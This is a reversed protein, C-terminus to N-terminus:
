TRTEQNATGLLNALSIGIGDPPLVYNAAGLKIAEGPMGFVVSSLDDQAITIAGADKMLKLEAAGDKGMGTLLVGIADAGFVNAVSRFLYSISPRMGNEPQKKSLVIQGNSRVEMHHDDPAMYAHEPLPSEGHSAISVPFGSSEALWETFGHVFGDAMHQVILVPVPFDLPLESLIAQIAIPGGTSAGMAVVKIETKPKTKPVSTVPAPATVQRRLLHPRRTVVKVESMLKVTQILEKMSREYDPHGVGAPKKIVTVAGAELAKFTKAVEKPDYSATVMIIPTPNTEMIRRTAQYGDMKPMNIDMTIVHPKLRKAAKIAEDGDDATGIVQIDPDSSLVHVLFQQSVLSDEVVLVRIM